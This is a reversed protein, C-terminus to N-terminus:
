SISVKRKVYDLYKFEISNEEYVESEKVLVWDEDEDLNHLTTDAKPFKKLIKTIYAKDCRDILQEVVNQGGTVFVKRDGKPNIEGLLDDLEEISRVQYGSELKLDQRSLVINTRNALPQSNPLAELTKRGMIIINGETFERFRKLDKRIHVLMDGDLGINWNEDVAFMLIM